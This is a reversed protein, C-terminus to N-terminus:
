AAQDKFVILSPDYDEVKEYGLLNLLTAAVNSLGRKELIAMEYEERYGSDYVAFPVPNLSHATRVIRRGDKDMTFMEDANGHDATVVAIGKLEKVLELLEGVCQDVTEVATIAAEMVGTHGVMDGNAFNLRGFRYKGTKLLEMTKNKIEEAKMRPAKDFEIKDSPIEIYDELEPDIYGSRNGNWFYTVHGFKQTESIAFSRVGEACLYESLTRDIVPPQVLFNPPMHTDGDYEMMGAYLIDDLPGREFEHFDKETFARSIEIARDGRFNFFIVADGGKIPGVPQGHEDAIVFADLYQDTIELDERYYTRVAEEANRFKRGKGLVHAEWGRKVINWDANYRDMTVKMRGGGSAIRYDLGKEKSIRSLKEETPIVYNLASREGVDRGDLLAHVRVRKIGLEACKDIMIYLHDIHSHVNGDSLLGIFHITGGRRARSVIKQWLETKFVAGSKLAKNVLRAGQDFVRGAGLANHGVESNGMDKDTPLGVAVGHAQLQTYLKSGMLRDLTPTRALFVADTEDRRGIGIGDMIILLLPGKRGKFYKLKELSLSM